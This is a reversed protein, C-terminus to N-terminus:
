LHIIFNDNSDVTRKHAIKVSIPKDIWFLSNEAKFKPFDSLEKDKNQELILSSPCYM